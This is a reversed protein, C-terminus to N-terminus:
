EDEAVKKRRTTKGPKDSTKRPKERGEIAHLRDRLMAAKEYDEAAVARNMENRIAQAEGGEGAKSIIEDIIKDTESRDDASGSKLNIRGRRVASKDKLVLHTANKPQKGKHEDIGQITKLNKDLIMSFADYCESCGVRGTKGLESATMGCNMCVPEDSQHTTVNRACNALIGSLINGIPIENGMPDKIPITHNKACESCLHQDNRVGNVIETFQITAERVHCVDCLM